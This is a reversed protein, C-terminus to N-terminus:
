PVVGGLVPIKSPFLVYCALMLSGPNTSPPPSPSLSPTYRWPIMRYSPWRSRSTKLVVASRSWTDFRAAAAPAQRLCTPHLVALLWCSTTTSSKHHVVSAPLRPSLPHGPTPKALTVYREEKRMRHNLTYGPAPQVPCM